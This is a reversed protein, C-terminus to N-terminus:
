KGPSMVLKIDQGLLECSDVNWSKVESITSPFTGNFFNKGAFLTPAQYVVLENLLDAQIFNSLTDAGGEVLVQLIGKKGLYSLVCDLNITGEEIMPVNVIEQISDTEKTTFFVSQSVKPNRVKLHSLEETLTRGRPDLIVRLPQSKINAAEAGRVTLLPDDALVTKVGVIVAQSEARLRHVDSRSNASTIWQSTGDLCNISGNISCAIKGLVWPRGTRRHHLYSRLQYTAEKNCIGVFTSIGRANLYNIGRGSVKEDPDVQAVFVRAVRMRTLLECCPPTLGHHSCPELTVYVDSGEIDETANCVANPEAHPEGRIRHYGEGIVKGNKVIVCGVWPNPWTTLRGKAALEIARLMYQRHQEGDEM